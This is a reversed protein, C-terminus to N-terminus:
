TLPRAQCTLVYGAAVEEQELSYNVDMEVKGERVRARCTSCVGGKCSYPLDAGSELAAELITQGYYSINLQLVTGDIKVHVESQKETRGAPLTNTRTMESTNEPSSFLEVHIKRAEVRAELLAEKVARIMELPGCIFCEDIAHAPIIKQLFLLTKQKDIRGFLLDTDGAERSLIHYISLRDVYRNKLADIEEKFIISHRGKNGYILYVQSHPEVQLITKLISFVPTIGSGAAFALYLKAQQPHVETFFRGMPPMVELEEGERLQENAYASFRGEPVKKIAVQWERDQPSSCISYSRRIEEGKFLRRFTLYQGQRYRFIEELEKPVDLSVLVCDTTARKLKKVRVKHFTTMHQYQGEGSAPVLL